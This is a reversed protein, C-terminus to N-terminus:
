EIRDILTEEKIEQRTHTHALTSESGPRPTTILSTHCSLVDASRRAPLLGPEEGPM